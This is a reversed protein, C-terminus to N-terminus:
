ASQKGSTPVFVRADPAYKIKKNIFDSAAMGGGISIEVHGHKPSYGASRRPYVVVCGKPLNSLDVTDIPVERFNPNKIIQRPLDAASNERTWRIGLRDFVNGVYHACQHKSYRCANRRADEAIKAGLQADYGAETISRYIRGVERKATRAVQTVSKTVSQKVSSATNKAVTVARNASQGVSSFIRPIQTTFIQQTGSWLGSFFDVVPSFFDFGLFNSTLPIDTSLGINQQSPISARTSSNIFPHSFINQTTSQTYIPNTFLSVTDASLSDGRSIYKTLLNGCKESSYVAVTGVANVM